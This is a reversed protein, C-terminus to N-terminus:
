AGVREALGRLEPSAPDQMKVLGAVVLQVAAAEVQDVLQGGAPADVAVFM